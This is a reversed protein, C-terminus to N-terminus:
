PLCWINSPPLLPTHQVGFQRRLFWPLVSGSRQPGLEPDGSENRVTSTVERPSIKMCYTWCLTTMLSTPIITHPPSQRPSTRPQRSRTCNKHLRPEQETRRRSSCPPNLFVLDWDRAGNKCSRNSAWIKVKEAWQLWSFIVSVPNPPFLFVVKIRLQCLLSCLLSM